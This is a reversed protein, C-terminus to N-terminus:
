ISDTSVKFYPYWRPSTHIKSPTRGTPSRIMDGRLEGVVYLVQKLYRLITEMARRFMNHIVRFRQNHGVVHLFMDVQEEVTTHIDELLRRTRFTQVLRAFHARKM